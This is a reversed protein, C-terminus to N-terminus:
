KNEEGADLLLQTELLDLEEVPPTTTDTTDALLDQASSEEDPVVTIPPGSFLTEQQQQQQKKIEDNAHILQLLHSDQPLQQRLTRMGRDM